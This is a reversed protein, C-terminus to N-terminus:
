CLIFDQAERRCELASGRFSIHRASVNTRVRRFIKENGADRSPIGVQNEVECDLCLRADANWPLAKSRSSIRHEETNIPRCGPLADNGLVPYFGTGRTPHM